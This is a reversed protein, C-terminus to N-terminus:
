SFAAQSGDAHRITSIWVDGHDRAIENLAVCGCEIHVVVPPAKDIAGNKHVRLVRELQLDTENAKIPSKCIACRNM